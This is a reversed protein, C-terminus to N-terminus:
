LRSHRLIFDIINCRHKTFKIKLSNKTKNLAIWRSQLIYDGLIHALLQIM